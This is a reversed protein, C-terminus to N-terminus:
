SQPCFRFHGVFAEVEAPDAISGTFEPEIDGASEGVPLDAPAPAFWLGLRNRGDGECHIQLLTVLGEHRGGVDGLCRQHEM